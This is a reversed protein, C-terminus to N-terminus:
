LELRIVPHGADSSSARAGRRPTSDGELLSPWSSATTATSARARRAARRGGAGPGQRGQRAVRRPAARDLSRARPAQRSLVLTVKDRGARALGALAAGLRVAPIARARGGRQRVDGGHRPRARAPDQHGRRDARGAGARLVLARLLARRHLRSQPLHPPLRTETALKDLPAGPIPSPWSSCARAAAVGRGRGARPLVLLAALTEATTGSKSSSWSRAHPALNLADLMHKVAGPDTSDLVLMDPFGMKSGFTLNLVEGACRRAAWASCSWRPTSCGASRTRSRRPHRRRPERMITPSTLWGLRNRVTAADGKWLTADKVWLRDLFDHQELFRSRRRWRPCSSRTRCCWRRHRSPPPRPALGPASPAGAPAASAERM